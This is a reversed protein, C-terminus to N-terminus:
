FEFVLSAVIGWRFEDRAGKDIPFVYGVGLRPQAPLLPLTVLNLRLGVAGFLIDHGAGAQNIASEGDFEILPIASLVGPLPLETHALEYGFVADYELTWLGRGVPGILISDGLGTQISLHEGLRTLDFLKPVLELDKSIPGLTPPAVEMGVVFTTDFSRDPSVCQFVPYRAGLEINTFGEATQRQLGGPRPDLRSTRDSEYRPAIEVTLLGFSKEVEVKVSDFQRGRNEAHFYDARIENDVDAEDARLPEVFWYQGYISRRDLLGFLGYRNSADDSNKQTAEAAPVPLNDTAATTISGFTLTLLPASLVALSWFGM